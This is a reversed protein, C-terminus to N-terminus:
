GFYDRNRETPYLNCCDTRAAPFVISKKEKKKRRRTGIKNKKKMGVDDGIALEM